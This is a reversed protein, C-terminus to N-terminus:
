DNRILEVSFFGDIYNNKYKTPLTLFYGEDSILNKTDFLNLNNDYKKISFNKNEDLFKKIIKITESHFFSCVMYIIKGKNKVLKASKRLLDNQLKNLEAINPKKSRFLIEPHKRVTGISSCPADLLVIDYKFKEDFNLANLNKIKPKFGLRSLNEKLKFIRKKSIDNLLVKNNSLIQFAKGGPAACMDLIDFNKINNNIALPLMSSFDQVWWEGKDFNEIDSIKKQVKVFTSKLSSRTNEEAFGKLYKESKFVIHIDPQRYFTDIFNHTNINKTKKIEHVFWDPFDNIKIKTRKVDNINKLINKLIANIFGPFVKIKKSVNVTENVVAYPKINLYVIQAIASCLLVFENTKLKKKVFNNLIVKSHISRRMSNLCVNNIFSLENQNFSHEAIKEDFITNFNKNKKFIEILIQFIIYRIKTSRNM